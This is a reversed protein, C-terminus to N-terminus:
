PRTTKPVAKHFRLRHFWSHVTDTQLLGRHYTVSHITDRGQYHFIKGNLLGDKYHGSEAINGKLDYRFYKGDRTGSSWTVEDFLSGESSWSKWTGDKLGNKFTGQTKLNKNPYYASFVGNLLRGSFGGQTQHLQNGSYWYYIKRSDPRTPSHYDGLQAVVTQEADAIRVTGIGADPVKQACVYVPWLLCFLIRKM